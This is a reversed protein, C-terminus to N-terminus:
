HTAATDEQGGLGLFEWCIFRQISLDLTDGGGQWKLELTATEAMPKKDKTGRWNIRSLARGVESDVRVNIRASDSANAPDEIRYTREGEVADGQRPVDEVILVRFVGTQGVAPLEVFNRLTRYKTQTFIEWDLKLGEPTRLFFAHVRLPEMSFNGARSVASLLMDAEDVGYQVELNALPMFFEKMKFQPPQDYVMMFFGRKADEESLEYASFGAAPADLDSVTDDAYFKELRGRMAEGHIVLPLREEVTSAQIYKALLQQADKQWGVRLYAAEQAAPDVVIEAGVPPAKAVKKLEKSAFYFTCVGAVALVSFVWILPKLSREVELESYALEQEHEPIEAAEAGERGRDDIQSLSVPVQKKPKPDPTRGRQTPLRKGEASAEDPMASLAPIGGFRLDQVPEIEPSTIVGGCRPCPGTTPPLERPVLLKADCHRCRFEKQTNSIV